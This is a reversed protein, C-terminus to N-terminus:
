VVGRTRAAANLERAVRRTRTVLARTDRFTRYVRVAAASAAICVLVFLLAFLETM